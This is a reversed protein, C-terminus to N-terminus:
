TIAISVDDIWMAKAGANLTKITANLAFLSQGPYALDPPSTLSPFDYRFNNLIFSLYEGRNPAIELAIHNWLDTGALTFLVPASPITVMGSPGNYRWASLAGDWRVEYIKGINNYRMDFYFRLDINAVAEQTLFTIDFRLFSPVNSMRFYRVANQIDNALVGTTTILSQNGSYAKANTLVSSGPGGPSWKLLTAEFDDVVGSPILAVDVSTRTDRVYEQPM